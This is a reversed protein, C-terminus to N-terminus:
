EKQENVAAHANASRLKLCGHSDLLWLSFLSRANVAKAADFQM